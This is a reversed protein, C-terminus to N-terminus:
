LSDALDAVKEYVPVWEPAPIITAVEEAALAQVCRLCIHSKYGARYGLSQPFRVMRGCGPEHCHEWRQGADDVIGSM